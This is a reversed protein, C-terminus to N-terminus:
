LSDEPKEDHLKQLAAIAEEQKGERVLAAAKGAEVERSAADHAARAEKNQPQLRLANGYARLTGVRDGARQATYGLALWVEVDDPHIEAWSELLPQAEETKNQDALVLGLLKAWSVDSPYRQQANRAWRE